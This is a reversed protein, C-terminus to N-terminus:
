GAPKDMMLERVKGLQKEVETGDRGERAVHSGLAASLGADELCAGTAAPAAEYDTPAPSDTHAEPTSKVEGVNRTERAAPPRLSPSAGANEPCVGSILTSADRAPEGPSVAHGCM